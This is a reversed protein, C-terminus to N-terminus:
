YDLSINIESFSTIDNKDLLDSIYILTDQLPLSVFNNEDIISYLDDQIRNILIKYGFFTLKLNTAFILDDIKREIKNIIM